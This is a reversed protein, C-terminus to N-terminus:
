RRSAPAASLRRNVQALATELDNRLAEQPRRLAPDRAVIVYDCGALGLKGAYQRVIERLRRRIRNRVVATGLKKTVTFGFRAPLDDARVASKSAASEVAATKPAATKPAATKPAATKPAATKPAATGDGQPTGAPLYAVAAPVRLKGELLLSPTSWRAGGRIRLFDARRKLTVSTMGLVAGEIASHNRWWKERRAHTDIDRSRLGSRIPARFRAQM